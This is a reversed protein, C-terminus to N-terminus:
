CFDYITKWHSEPFLLGIPHNCNLPIYMCCVGGWPNGVEELEGTDQAYTTSSIFTTNMMFLALLITLKKM